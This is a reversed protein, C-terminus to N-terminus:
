QADIKNEIGFAEMVGFAIDTPFNAKLYLMIETKTDFKM